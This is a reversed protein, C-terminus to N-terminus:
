SESMVGALSATMFGSLLGALLARPALLSVEQRRDPALASIGGILIAMSGFNAFNCMAYTLIMVTRPQLEGHQVMQQMASYSLWENFVFKVTLLHGAKACDEWPVGLLFGVPALVLGGIAKFSLGVTGLVADLLHIISVFALLIAAIFACLRLGDIAGNAAAEVLGRDGPLIMRWDMDGRTEPIGTEPAMIKSIVIAGPASMVSAALIYGPNAGFVGVYVAMVSGAMTGMFCSMVTFLESRTMRGLVTKLATMAEIGMIIQMAASLTEAGSTRLTKQMLRAFGFMVLPIIRLYNLAAMTASVFIIVAGMSLIVFDKRDALSGFLFHAGQDSFRQIAQFLAQAAMFFAAPYTKLILLGLLAQFLVGMAVLRWSIRDRQESCLYATFLITAMGVLSMLRM